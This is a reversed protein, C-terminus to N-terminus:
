PTKKTSAALMAEAETKLPSNPYAQIFEKLRTEFNQRNKSGGQCLALLFAVKDEQQNGPFQLQIDSAQQFAQGFNGTKFTKFALEYASQAEAEKGQALTGQELKLLSQKLYSTPYKDFLATRYRQKESADTSVSFLLYLAEAENSTMPFDKLLRELYTRTLPANGIEFKCYKGLDFLAKELRLDSQQRAIVTRPIREIWIQMSDTLVSAKEEITQQTSKITNQKSDIFSAQKNKRNWFDEVQRIGWKQVFEQEGRMRAQDNYFYFSQQEPSPARRTYIVTQLTTPALTKKQLSDTVAKKKAQMAKYKSELVDIPLSALAQLSDELSIQDSLRVFTSWIRKNKQADEYLPQGISIVSAASDFYAAAKSYQQLQNLFLAGLKVYIEGKNPNNQSAKSWYQQARNYDKQQYYIQGVALQIEAHLDENKGDSLLKELEPISENISSLAIKAQLELAYTSKERLCQTFATRAQAFNGQSQNLQGLIYYFRSRTYRDRSKPAIRELSKIALATEGKIQYAFAKCTQYDITNVNNEVLVEDVREASEFNRQFLYLKYLDILADQGTKADHDISNVYKFTELANKYDKQFLRTKGILLYADDVFRSNQHRDIVLSAKRIINGFELSHAQGFSSDVQLIIPLIRSYSEKQETQWTRQMQKYLREAQFIANYKANVNHFAVAAPRTSQQSCGLLFGIFFVAAIFRIM